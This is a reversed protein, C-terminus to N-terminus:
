DAVYKRHWLTFREVPDGDINWPWATVM